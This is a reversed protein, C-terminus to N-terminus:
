KQLIITISRVNTNQGTDRNEVEETDIQIDKLKVDKAFKNMLIQATDVAACIARGRAKLIIESNENAQVLTMCALVYSMVPKKGILITNDNRETM